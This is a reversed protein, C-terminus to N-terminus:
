KDEEGEVQNVACCSYIFDNYGHACFAKCFLRDMIFFVHQLDLTYIDNNFTAGIFYSLNCLRLLQKETENRTLLKWQVAVM